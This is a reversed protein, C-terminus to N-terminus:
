DYTVTGALNAILASLPIKKKAAENHLDTRRAFRVLFFNGSRPKAEMSGQVLYQNGQTSTLISGAPLQMIQDRGHVETPRSESM